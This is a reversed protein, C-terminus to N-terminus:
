RCYAQKLRLASSYPCPQEAISHTGRSTRGYACRPLTALPNDLATQAPSGYLALDLEKEKQNPRRPIAHRVLPCGSHQYTNSVLSTEGLRQEPSFLYPPRVGITNKFFFCMRNLGSTSRRCITASLSEVISEYDLKNEATSKLRRTIEVNANNSSFGIYIFSPSQSPLSSSRNMCTRAPSSPQKRRTTQHRQSTRGRFRASPM